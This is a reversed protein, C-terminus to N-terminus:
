QGNEDGTVIQLLKAAADTGLVPGFTALIHAIATDLVGRFEDEGLQAFSISRPMVAYSTGYRAQLSPPLKVIESHGAALKMRDSVREATWTGPTPGNNLLDAAASAIAWWLRHRRINRPRRLEAVVDVGDPIRELEREFHENAPVLCGGRKKLVAKVM